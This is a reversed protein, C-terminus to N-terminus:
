DIYTGWEEGEALRKILGLRERMLKRIHPMIMSHALM